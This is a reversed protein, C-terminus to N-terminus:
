TDNKTFVIFYGMPLGAIRAVRFHRLPVQRHLRFGTAAAVRRIGSFSTDLNLDQYGTAALIRAQLTRNWAYLVPWKTHPEIPFRLEPLQLVLSGKPKLVRAIEVFFAHQDAIHEVLSIALIVDVTRTKLPLCEARAQIRPIRPEVFRSLYYRDSDVGLVTHVGQLLSTIGGPGCGLDVLMRGEEFSTGVLSQVISAYRENRIHYFRFSNLVRVVGLYLQTLANREAPLIRGFTSDRM